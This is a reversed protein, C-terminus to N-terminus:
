INRLKAKEKIELQLELKSKVPSPTFGAVITGVMLIGIIWLKKKPLSISYRKDFDANKAANVADELALKYMPTLFNDGKQSIEIPTIFREKYGLADGKKAIDEIGPLKFLVTVSACLWSLLIVSALIIFLYSDTGVQVISYYRSGFDYWCHLWYRYIADM